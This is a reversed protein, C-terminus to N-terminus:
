AECEKLRNQRCNCIGEYAAQIKQTKETALKIMEEPLGKSILKDPHNQNMMRRYAKKVEADSAHVNINLLVYSQREFSSYSKEPKRQQKKRENGQKSERRDRKFEKKQDQSNQYDDQFWNRKSFVADYHEFDIRGLNLMYATKQLLTKIEAAVSGDAYAAQLQIDLFLRMLSHDFRCANQFEELLARLDFDARKGRNFLYIARTRSERNLSFRKMVKEAIYIENESVRGDAKAIYGMLLFAANFFIKQSENSSIPTQLIPFSRMDLLHGILAGIVAGVMGGIISGCFGGIIKGHWTGKM